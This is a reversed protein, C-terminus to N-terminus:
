GPGNCVGSQYNTGAPIRGLNKAVRSVQENHYKPTRSRYNGVGRWVDGKARIIESKLHWAAVRANLLPNWALDSANIGYPSLTKLHITNIQFPGHDITGNSARIGKGLQGNETLYLAHLLRPPLGFEASALGICKLPMNKSNGVQKPAAISNSAFLALMSLLAFKMM